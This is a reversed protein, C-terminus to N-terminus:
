NAAKTWKTTVPVFANATSSFKTARFADAADVKNARLSSPGQFELDIPGLHAMAKDFRKLSLSGKTAVLGDVLMTLAQCSQELDVYNSSDRPYSPGGAKTYHKNCSADIPQLKQHAANEGYRESTYAVTGNLSAPYSATFIAFDADNLDSMVIKPSFSAQQEGGVWEELTPGPTADVIMNVGAAKMESIEVPIQQPIESFDSTIDTVHVINVGAAKLAPVLVGTVPALDGGLSDTLVGVTKGKLAHSRILAQAFARANRNPSMQATFVLGPYKTYAAQPAAVSEFMPTHHQAVCVDGGNVFQGTVVAFVHDNETLSVCTQQPAAPNALSYVDFVPALKRKGLVGSANIAKIQATYALELQSVSPSGTTPLGLQALSAPDAVPIGVKVVTSKSAAVSTAADAFAVGAATTAIAAVLVFSRRGFGGHARAARPGACRRM